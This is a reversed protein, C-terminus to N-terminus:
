QALPQGDLRTVPNRIDDVRWLLWGKPTCRWWERQTVSTDIRHETGDPLRQERSTEQLITAIATDGHVELRQITEHQADFRVIREIFKRTREYMQERTSVNGHEDVTHFDPHRLRMVADADRASFAAENAAYAAELEQRARDVSSTCRTTERVCSSPVLASALLAAGWATRAKV